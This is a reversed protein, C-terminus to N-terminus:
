TVDPDLTEQSADALCLYLAPLGGAFLMLAPMVVGSDETLAAAISGVVVGALAAALGPRERLAAVLPRAGIWRTASLAVASALALWTYPTQSIYGINNAAKRFALDGVASFEGHLAESMFRGLHTEASGRMMDIAGFAAILVVIAALMGLASKWTVRVGNIRLWAVAYAVIGWLAVGANAGAFPAAATIIAVVAVLPMLGLRLSRAWRSSAYLDCTLGVAVISAGVLLAAGENGMGYYRWGARISYSFFGSELPRGTWQDALIVLSTLTSLALVPIEARSKLAATLGLVLAFVGLTAVGFALAAQQSTTPYRSVLFMLWAGGPVCLALLVLWRAPRVLLRASPVLAILAALLAVFAASWAFYPIFLLDRLYDIAGVTTGLRDLQAVSADIAGAGGAGVATMPQGVMTAPTQIGLASLATPAMDFNTLLGPQHTSSSTLEGHMGLGSLITPGFYPPQYYPKDTAPTVIMLLVRRSGVAAQVDAVVTGLSQVAAAHSSASQEPSQGPADHARELDGPDIVLLAPQEALAIRIATRMQKPDARVGFPAGTDTALLGAATLQLDIAGNRDMALLAAPRRTGSPTSTDEDSNGVASTRDGAGRIAAGLAGIDPADLSGANAAKIAPLHAPDAATGIPGATWRSSSLTLAGGAVTPWGADATISNMNAVAGDHAVKLLASGATSTVDGWTLFPSLVIVVTDVKPAAVTTVALAASSPALAFAVVAVASLVTALRRWITASRQPLNPRM